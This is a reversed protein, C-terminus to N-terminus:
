FTSTPYSSYLYQAIDISITTDQYGVKALISWQLSITKEM